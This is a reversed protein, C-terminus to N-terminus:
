FKIKGNYRKIINGLTKKPRLLLGFLISVFATIEIWFIKNKLKLLYIVGSITIFLVLSILVGREILLGALASVILVIASIVHIEGTTKEKFAAATGVFFFSVGSIFFLPSTGNTQFLMLWGTIWCFLTFLNKDNNELLYWSESISSPIKKLKILVYAIFLIVVLAQLVTIIM